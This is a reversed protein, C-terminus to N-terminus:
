DPVYKVHRGKIEFTGKSFMAVVERYSKNEYELIKDAVEDGSSCSSIDVAKQLIIEGGDIDDSVFHITLGSIKCGYDYADKQADTSGKFAPLLSPHINIIKHKYQELLSKSKIIRMYGALVVLNIKNSDLIEKIRADMAERSHYLESSLVEYPIDHEKARQIARANPNNTILVKIKGDIEGEEIGDIISQFNSGRGSALIAISLKPM